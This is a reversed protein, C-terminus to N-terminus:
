EDSKGKNYRRVNILWSFMIELYSASGFLKLSPRWLHETFFIKRFFNCFFVHTPNEQKIFIVTHGDVKM